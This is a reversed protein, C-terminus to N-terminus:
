IEIRRHRFGCRIINYQVQSGTNDAGSPSTNVQMWRAGSTPINIIGKFNATFRFYLRATNHTYVGAACALPYFSYQDATAGDWTAAVSTKVWLLLNTLNGIVFNVTLGISSCNGVFIWGSCDTQVNDEVESILVGTSTRIPLFNDELISNQIGLGSRYDKRLSLKKMNSPISM